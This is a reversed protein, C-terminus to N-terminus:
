NEKEVLVVLADVYMDAGFLRGYPLAQAPLEAIGSVGRADIYDEEGRGASGGAEGGDGIYMEEM